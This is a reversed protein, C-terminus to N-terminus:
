EVDAQTLEFPGEVGQWPSPRYAESARGGATAVVMQHHAHPVPTKVFVVRSGEPNVTIHSPLRAGEFWQGDEHWFYTRTYPEFYVQQHPHYVFQYHWWDQRPHEHHPLGSPHFAIKTENTACGATFLVTAIFIGCSTLKASSM